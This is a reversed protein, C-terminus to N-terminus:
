PCKMAYSYVVIFYTPTQFDRLGHYIQKPVHHNVLPNATGRYKNIVLNAIVRVLHGDDTVGMVSTQRLRTHALSGNSTVTSGPWLSSFTTFIFWLHMGFNHVFVEGLNLSHFQQTDRPEIELQLCIMLIVYLVKIHTQRFDVM